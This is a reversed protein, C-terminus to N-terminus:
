RIGLKVFYGPPAGDVIKEIIEHGIITWHDGSKELVKMLELTRITDAVDKRTRNFPEIQPVLRDLVIKSGNPHNRMVYLVVMDMTGTTSLTGHEPITTEGPDPVVTAKSQQPDYLYALVPDQGEVAKKTERAWIHAPPDTADFVAFAIRGDRLKALPLDSSLRNCRWDFMAPHSIEDLQMSQQTGSLLRSSALQLRAHEALKSVTSNAPLSVNVKFCEELRSPDAITAVILFNHTSGTLPRPDDSPPRQLYRRLANQLAAVTLYRDKPNKHIARLVIDELDAGCEANLQGVRTPMAGLIAERLKEPSGGPVEYPRRGTLLEYLIIGLTYVDSSPGIPGFQDTVHEPSMYAPTGSLIEKARRPLSPDFRMALGFDLLHPKGDADVLIHDPKLDRHFIGHFDHCIKLAQCVELFLELRETLQLDADRVYTTIPNGRVYKMAYWPFSCAGRVTQETHIGGGYIHAVGAHEMKGLIRIEEEFRKGVTPDAALAPHILKVIVERQPIDQEALYVVGMGGAGIQKKIMFSGIKQGIRRCEEEPPLRLKFAVLSLVQPDEGQAFLERLRNQQDQQSLNRLGNYFKDV